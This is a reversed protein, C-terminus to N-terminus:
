KASLLKVAEDNHTEKAIDLAKLGANNKIKTNAGNNLLIKAADNYGYRISEMLATEGDKNQKNLVKKNKKLILNTIDASSKAAAILLTDNSEGGVLVDVNAGAKILIKAAEPQDGGVALSLATDGIKNKTELSSKKKLLLKIVEVNGDQAAVMLPTNGDEDQSNADVSKLLTNVKAIDGLHVAQNLEQISTTKAQGHCVGVLIAMLVLLSSTVIKM